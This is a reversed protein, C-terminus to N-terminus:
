LAEAAGLRKIEEFWEMAKVKEGKDLCEKFRKIAQNFTLERTNPQWKQAEEQNFILLDPHAALLTARLEDKKTKREGTSKITALAGFGAKNKAKMSIRNTIDNNLLSLIAKEGLKEIAADLKNFQPAVFKFGECASGERFETTEYEIAPRNSTDEVENDAVTAVTENGDTM